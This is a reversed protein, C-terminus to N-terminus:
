SLAFSINADAGSAQEAMGANGASYPSSTTYTQLLGSNGISNSATWLPLYGTTGSGGIGSPGISTPDWAGQSGDAPNWTLFQNVATGVHVFGSPPNGPPPIPIVFPINGSWGSAPTQLTITNGSGDDLILANAGISRSQAHGESCFFLGLSIVAFVISFHVNFFAKM